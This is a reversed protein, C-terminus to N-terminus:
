LGNRIDDKTTFCDRLVLRRLYESMAEPYSNARVPEIDKKYFSCRCEYLNDETSDILIQNHNYYIIENYDLEILMNWLKTFVVNPIGTNFEIFGQPKIGNKMRIISNMAFHNTYKENFVDFEMKSEGLYLAITSHLYDNINYTIEIDDYKYVFNISTLFLSMVEKFSNRVEPNIDSLKRSRILEANRSVFQM